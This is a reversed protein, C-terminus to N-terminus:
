KKQGDQALQDFLRLTYGGKFDEKGTGTSYLWDDVDAIPIHLDAGRAIKKLDTPDNDLKGHILTDDIDTVQLWLYEANDGELIRGKVGFYQDKGRQKFATMFEPWSKKAEAQAAMLQPDNDDITIENDGTEANVLGAPVLDHLPDDSKLHGALTKDNLHFQDTDPSYVALTDERVFQVITKGIQQYVKRLDAQDDKDLWDVSLWARNKRIAQALHPDKLEAALKESEAFYPENVSNVAFRSSGVKVVFSPPKASVADETLEAGLAQSIAHAVGGADLTRPESLLLVLSVLRPQQAEASQPKATTEEARLLSAHLFCLAITMAFRQILPSFIRTPSKM